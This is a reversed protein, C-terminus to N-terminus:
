RDTTAKEEARARIAEVAEGAANRLGDDILSQPLPVNPVVLLDFTVLTREDDIAHLTWAANGRGINGKIYWGEVMAWGPALPAIEQFRFVQWLTIMGNMVPLQFYVETGLPTKGIVRSAHFKGGTFEKYRAYDLVLKHLTGLPAKVLIEARGYRDPVGAPQYNTRFSHGDSLRALEADDARDPTAAAVPALPPAFTPEASAARGPAWVLAAGVMSALARAAVGRAAAGRAAVGRAAVHLSVARFALV